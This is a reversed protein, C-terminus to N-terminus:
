GLVAVKSRPLMLTRAGKVLHPFELAVFGRLILYRCGDLNKQLEFRVVLLRAALVPVRLRLWGLTHSRASRSWFLINFLGIQDACKETDM